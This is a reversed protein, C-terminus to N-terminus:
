ARKCPNEQLYRKVLRIADNVTLAKEAEEDSINIDFEEEMGMILEVRDLSDAGLDDSIIADLTYQKDSLGLEQIFVKKIRAEVQENDM